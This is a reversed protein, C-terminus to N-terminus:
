LSGTLAGVEMLFSTVAAATKEKSTASSRKRLKKPTGVNKCSQGVKKGLLALVEPQPL